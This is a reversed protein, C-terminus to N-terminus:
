EGIFTLNIICRTVEATSTGRRRFQIKFVPTAGEGFSLVDSGPQNQFDQFPTLWNVRNVGDILLQADASRDPFGSSYNAQSQLRLECRADLSWTGAVLPDCNLTVADQFVATANTHVTAFDQVRQTDTTTATGAHALVVADLKEKDSGAGESIANLFVIELVDGSHNSHSLDDKAPQTMTSDKIEQELLSLNVAGSATDTAVSYTYTTEAM